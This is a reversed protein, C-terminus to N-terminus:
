FGINISRSLARKGRYEPLIIPAKRKPAIGAEKLKTVWNNVHKLTLKGVKAKKAHKAANIGGRRGFVNIDLLSNGMLRNKGHVGGTVEGAAFLGPIPKGDANLAQTYENIEIGGNMYHLTPFVLMPEKTIDIDFRKFQRYMAALYRKITGEGHIIEIMPSDLWLGRQGTVTVIGKNRGYCERIIAAAVVDRPELPYIFQEGDINVLQAGLGRVKETVLQGVIQEPFAAGTPHYQVSDMDRLHTGVRYGMVLGDATAGYHNTTPFEQIHLRGFGGTTLVTAKARVVYYQNTELNYLVAGAVQGSTDMILEVAPSFEIVRIERNLVEDMLVRMIELGTYDKAAHMRKRSTGGGHIEIFNGHEDKDYMVGLEEHWKIILPAEKVLIRVLEPKNAYHGGGIVDIFHIPPSDQPRDAAQIGGQAMKTNADGFRLKTAILINEAKIGRYNTWLAAAAGSGGGGIILVDVDYDIDELDIDNPDILPYAELIDAVENPVYDGKNPGLKLARKGEPRYDPHWKELLKEKEEPTIRKFVEKLRRERTAEVKEISDWFEEPYGPYGM